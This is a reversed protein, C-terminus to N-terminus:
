RSTKELRRKLSAYLLWTVKSASTRLAELREWDSTPLLGIRKAFVLLYSLEALSALSIGLYHRFERSGRRSSGEVINAPASFAARRAQSTLGFMESRPWNRTAEWVAVALEEALRWAQFREYPQM